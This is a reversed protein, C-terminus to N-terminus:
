VLLTETSRTELVRAWGWAFFSAELAQIIVSYLRDRTLTLATRQRGKDFSNRGLQATTVPKGVQFRSDLAWLTLHVEACFGCGFFISSSLIAIDCVQRRRCISGRKYPSRWWTHGRHDWSDSEVAAAHSQKSHPVLRTFWHEISLGVKRGEELM